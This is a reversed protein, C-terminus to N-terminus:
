TAATLENRVERVGGVSRAVEEVRRRARDSPVTGRLTAVGADVQVEIDGAELDAEAALAREIERRLATDDGAEPAGVM